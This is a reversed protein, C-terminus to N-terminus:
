TMGMGPEQSESLFEEPDINWLDCGLEVAEQGTPIYEQTVTGNKYARDGCNHGIDEDAWVHHITISPFMQSLKELIQKPANWATLFSLRGDLVEAGSANWKTGWNQIRWEYWTPCGYKQINQYAQKGLDWEERDIEPHAALYAPEMETHLGTVALFAMYKKFGAATRSGSEIELESPMPILKNFDMLGNEGKISSFLRDVQVPDGDFSLINKVYNPM